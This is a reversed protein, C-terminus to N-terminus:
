STPTDRRPATRIAIAWLPALGIVVLLLGLFVVLAGMDGRWAGAPLGVSPANHAIIQAGNITILAIALAFVLWGSLWACLTRTIERLWIAGLALGAGALLLANIAWPAAIPDFLNRTALLGLQLVSYGPLGQCQAFLLPTQGCNYTVMPQWFFGWAWLLLGGSVAGAGPLSRKVRKGEAVEPAQETPAVEGHITPAEKRVGRPSARLGIVALVLAVLTAALALTALYLGFAPAATYIAVRIGYPQLATTYPGSAAHSMAPVTQFLLADTQALVLACVIAWVGYLAAAVWTLWPRTRQWLLPALLAGLATLFSWFIYASTPGALSALPPAGLEAATLSYTYRPGSAGKSLDGSTIATAWPTWAALFFLLGGLTAAIRAGIGWRRGRNSTPSSPAPWVPRLEGQAIGAKIGPAGSEADPASQEDM